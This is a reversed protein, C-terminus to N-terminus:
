LNTIMDSIYEENLEMEQNYETTWGNAAAASFIPYYFDVLAQVKETLTSSNDVSLNKGTDDGTLTQEAHADYASTLNEGDIVTKFDEATFGPFLAAMIAPIQEASFTGGRGNSGMAGSGLVKTIAKAYDDSLVVQGKYDTLLMSNEDKLAYKDPNLVATYNSGYGMLYGYNIKNYKGNDYYAIQKEQLRSYYDQSLDSADRTLSMKHMSAISIGFECDAKRATLTLLRNQAISLAM